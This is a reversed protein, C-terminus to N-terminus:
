EGIILRVGDAEHSLLTSETDERNFMFFPEGIFSSAYRKKEEIGVGYVIDDQPGLAILWPADTFQWGEVAIRWKKSLAALETLFGKVMEDSCVPADATPSKHADM